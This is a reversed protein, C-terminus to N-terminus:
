KCALSAFYAALNEVDEDSLTAVMPKMLPNDRAGSKYAKISDALYQENQGALNPYIPQTAMGDIGHCAACTTSKEKGAAPDGAAHASTSLVACALAFAAAINHAAKM